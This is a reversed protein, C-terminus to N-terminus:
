PKAEQQLLDQLRTPRPGKETRKTDRNAGQLRNINRPSVETLKGIEEKDVEM